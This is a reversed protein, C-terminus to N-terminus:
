GRRVQVQSHIAVLAMPPPPSLYMNSNGFRRGLNQKQNVCFHKALVFAEQMICYIIVSFSVIVILLKHNLDNQICIELHLFYIHTPGVKIRQWASVYM